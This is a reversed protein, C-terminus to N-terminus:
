RSRIADVSTIKRRAASDFSVIRRQLVRTALGLPIAALCQWAERVGDIEGQKRKTDCHYQIDVQLTKKEERNEGILPSRILDIM